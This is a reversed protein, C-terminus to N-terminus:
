TFPCLDWCARGEIVGLNHPLLHLERLTSSRGYLEETSSFMHQNKPLHRRKLRVQLALPNAPLLPPRAVLLAALEDIVVPSEGVWYGAAQHAQVHVMVLPEHLVSSAM